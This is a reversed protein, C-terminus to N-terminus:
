KIADKERDIVLRLIRLQDPNPDMFGLANKAKEEVLPLSRLFGRELRLRHNTQKLMSRSQILERVENEVRVKLISQFIYFLVMTFFITLVLGYGFARLFERKDLDRHINYNKLPM